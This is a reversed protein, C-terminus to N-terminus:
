FGTLNMEGENPGLGSGNRLERIEKQGKLWTSVRPFALM